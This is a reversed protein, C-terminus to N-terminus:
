LTARHPAAVFRYTADLILAHDVVWSHDFGPHVNNLVILDPISDLPEHPLSRLVTGDSLELEPVLADVYRADAGAANLRELIEMGPSERIDAVGPKYTVGVVIVVSGRVAKGHEALLDRARSVVQRPRRAISVMAQELLPASGRQRKLQWLLYHPDCPICHGGVGSGPLFAMFGYPKTSAAEIVEMVEVDLERSIDALENVLAINVARFANEYLKTLEAADPTSVVHVHEAYASLAKTARRACAATVGGVVRPVSEQSNQSNGPDIREPSFAVFIDIGIRFGRRQLPVVLFDRTTGVYSTSTLLIVQGTRAHEVVSACAGALAKLDPVLHHDVPTPVCIIVTEAHALADLAGTLQLAGSEMAKGLRDHDTSLIDVRDARIAELRATSLDIGIVAKAAAVFSLATPLGVYGLGVIAVDYEFPPSGAQVQAPIATLDITSDAAGLSIHDLM